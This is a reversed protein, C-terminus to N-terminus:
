VTNMLIPSSAAISTGYLISGTARSWSIKLLGALMRCRDSLSEVIFGVSPITVNMGYVNPKEMNIWVKVIYPQFWHFRIMMTSLEGCLSQKWRLLIMCWNNGNTLLITIVGVLNRKACSISKMPLNINIHYSALNVAISPSPRCLLCCHYRQLWLSARKIALSEWKAWSDVSSTIRVWEVPFTAIM